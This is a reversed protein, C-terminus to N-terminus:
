VDMNPRGPTLIIGGGFPMPIIVPDGRGERMQQIARNAPTEPDISESLIDLGFAVNSFARFFFRGTARWGSVKPARPAEVAPM